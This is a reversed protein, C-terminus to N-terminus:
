VLLPIPDGRTRATLLDALYSFLSRRQLRCTQSVSVGPAAVTPEHDSEPLAFLLSDNV